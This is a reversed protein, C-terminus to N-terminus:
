GVDKTLPTRLSFDLAHDNCVEICRGCNTCEGMTVAASHKGIMNLVPKEPCIQTCRMCLTCKDSDYHVRIIRFRGVISYFGGLPCIHGCFGHKLVFLDFLFLGVLLAMGFGLGFIAGRTLICIPSIFEFAAVGMLASLVLTLALVWYRINRSVWVKREVDDLRLWRRAGNAADTVLNVPCIWSCFARGGILTYFLLIIGAGILADFAVITGATAMQIVAFPDSLPIVEFLKSASLNGQLITWGWANAGFYLVLITLQVIRRAILFRHRYLFSM